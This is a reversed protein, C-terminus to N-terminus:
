TAGDVRDHALRVLEDAVRLLATAQPRRVSLPKSNGKYRYLYRAYDEVTAGQQPFGATLAALRQRVARAGLQQTRFSRLCAVSTIISHGTANRGIRAGWFWDDSPGATLGGANNNFVRSFRQETSPITSLFGLWRTLGPNDPDPLHSENAWRAALARSFWWWVAKAVGGTAPVGMITAGPPPDFPPAYDWPTRTVSFGAGQGGARAVSPHLWFPHATDDQFAVQSPSVVVLPRLGGEATLGLPLAGAGRQVAGTYAEVFNSARSM